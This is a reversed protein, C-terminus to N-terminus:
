ARSGGFKRRGAPTGTM